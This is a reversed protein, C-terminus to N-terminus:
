AGATDLLRPKETKDLPTHRGTLLRHLPEEVLRFLVISLSILLLFLLLLNGTVYRSLAQSLVGVHILYFVYSSQGLLKFLRTELLARVWTAEHMLGYLLLVVGWPLLLNNVAIGVPSSTGHAADLPTEVLMLLWTCAAIWAMGAWTFVGSPRQGALRGNIYLALAMGALFEVCRGFFTFTLLLSPSGLFGFTGLVPTPKLVQGLGMLFAALGLLGAAYLPLWRANRRLGLLLFPAALYFCEEATLSWGQTIGTFKFHDFFGRLFTLNLGVVLLKDTGTYNAWQESLDWAPRLAFVGFTLLTLLAYMPYIRAVRNRLYQWWWAGSLELRQQYRTAILFGSLVFFIPVGIHWEEMFRSVWSHKPLWGWDVREPSFHYFFVLYAAVARLGTLVPYYLQKPATM